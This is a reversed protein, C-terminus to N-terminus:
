INLEVLFFDNKLKDMRTYGLGNMRSLHTRKTTSGDTVLRM